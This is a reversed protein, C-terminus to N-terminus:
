QQEMDNEEKTNNTRQTWVNWCLVAPCVQSSVWLDPHVFLNKLSNNLSHFCCFWFEQYNKMVQM